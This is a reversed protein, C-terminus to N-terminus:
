ANLNMCILHLSMGSLSDVDFYLEKGLFVFFYFLSFLDVLHVHFMRGFDLTSLAKASFFDISYRWSCSIYERGATRLFTTYPGSFTGLIKGLTGHSALNSYICYKFWFFMTCVNFISAYILIWSDGMLNSYSSLM